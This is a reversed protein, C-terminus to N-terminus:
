ALGDNLEPSVLVLRMVLYLYELGPLFYSYFLPLRRRGQKQGVVLYHNYLLKDIAMM